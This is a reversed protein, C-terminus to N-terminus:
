SPFNILQEMLIIMFYEGKTPKGNKAVANEKSAKFMGEQEDLTTQVEWDAPRLKRWDDLVREVWADTEGEIYYDIIGDWESSPPTKNVFIVKGKMFNKTKGPKPSTLTCATASSDSSNATPPPTATSHVVKAFEKVLKKLGYVKLSTGMIILLDPKRSLDTTEISGIDDGLPHPEDYLVIAPRLKGIRLARASRAM